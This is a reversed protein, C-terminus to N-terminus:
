PTLGSIVSVSLLGGFPGIGTNNFNSVYMTTGTPSLAIFYPRAGALLKIEPMGLATVANAVTVRDSGTGAAYVRKNSPSLLVQALEQNAVPPTDFAFMQIIDQPFGSPILLRTVNTFANAIYLAKNDKTIAMALPSPFNIAFGPNLGINNKIIDFTITSIEDVFGHGLSNLVFARTATSNFVITNPSGGTNILAIAKGFNGSTPDSDIVQVTGNNFSPPTGSNAVWLEKGDPTVAISTPRPGVNPPLFTATQANTAESIVDVTRSITNLVFVLQEAPNEVVDFAGLSPLLTGDIFLPTEATITNFQTNIVILESRGTATNAAVFLTDGDHSVVLGDPQFPATSITASITPKAFVSGLPLSMAALMGAAFIPAGLCRSVFKTSIKKM